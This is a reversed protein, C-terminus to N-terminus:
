SREDKYIENCIAFRQDKNKFENVMNSDIMCRQIFERQTETPKPKPLPM